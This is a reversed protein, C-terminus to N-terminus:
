VATDDRFARGVDWTGIPSAVLESPSTYFDGRLPKKAAARELRITPQVKDASREGGGHFYAYSEGHWRSMSNDGGDAGDGGDGNAYAIGTSALAIGLAVILTELQKKM